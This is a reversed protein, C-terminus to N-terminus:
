RTWDSFLIGCIWLLVCWTWPLVCLAWLLAECARLVIGLTCMDVDSYWMYVAPSVMGVATCEMAVPCYM